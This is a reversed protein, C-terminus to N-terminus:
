REELRRWNQIASPTVVFELHDTYELEDIFGNSGPATVTFLEINRTPDDENTLAASFTISGDSESRLVTSYGKLAIRIPSDSLRGSQLLAAFGRFGGFVKDLLYASFNKRLYPDVAFLDALSVFATGPDGLNDAEQLRQDIVDMLAHGSMVSQQMQTRVVLDRVDESFDVMRRARERTLGPNSQLEEPSFLRTGAAEYLELFPFLTLVYSAFTLVMDPSRYEADEAVPGPVSGLDIKDASEEVHSRMVSIDTVRNPPVVLMALVAPDNAEAGLLKSYIFEYAKDPRAKPDDGERQCTSFRFFPAEQPVGNSVEFLAKICDAAVNGRFFNDLDEFSQLRREGLATQFRDAPVRCSDQGAKALKQIIDDQCDNQVVIYSLQAEIQTLQEMIEIRTLLVERGLANLKRDILDLRIVLNEELEFLRRHVELFHTDMNQELQDLRQGIQQLM